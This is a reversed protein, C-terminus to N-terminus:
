AEALRRKAGEMAGLYSEMLGNKRVYFHHDKACLMYEDLVRPWQRENYPAGSPRHPREGDISSGVLHMRKERLEWRSLRHKTLHDAVLGCSFWYKLPLSAPYKGERLKGAVWLAREEVGWDEEAKKRWLDDRPLGRDLVLGEITEAVKLRDPKDRLNAPVRLDRVIQDMAVYGCYGDPAIRDETSNHSFTVNWIDLEVAEEMRGPGLEFLEQFRKLGVGTPEFALSVQVRGKSYTGNKAFEPLWNEWQSKGDAEADGQPEEVEEGEEIEILNSRRHLRGAWSGHPALGHERLVKDIETFDIVDPDLYKYILEEDRVGTWGRLRLKTHDCARHAETETPYTGVLVVKGKLEITARYTGIGPAMQVKGLSDEMAGDRKLFKKISQQAQGAQPTSLEYSPAHFGQKSMEDSLKEGEADAEENESDEEQSRLLAFPNAGIGLVSPENTGKTGGKDNTAPRLESEKDLGGQTQMGTSRRKTEGSIRPARNGPGAAVWSVHPLIGASTIYRDIKSFDVDEIKQESDPYNLMGRKVNSLGAIRILALDQTKAAEEESNLLGVYIRKGAWEIVAKPKGLSREFKPPQRVEGLGPEGPSLCFFDSIKKGAYPSDVSLTHANLSSIPPVSNAGDGIKRKSALPGPRGAEDSDSVEVDEVIVENKFNAKTRGTGPKGNQTARPSSATTDGPSTSRGTGLDDDKSARHAQAGTLQKGMRAKASDVKAILNRTAELADGRRRMKEAEEFQNELDQAYSVPDLDNEKFRTTSKNRNVEGTTTTDIESKKAVTEVTPALTENHGSSAMKRKESEIPLKGTGFEVKAGMDSVNLTKGVESLTNEGGSKEDLSPNESQNNGADNESIKTDNSSSFEDKEKEEM